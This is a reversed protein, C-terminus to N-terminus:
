PLIGERPTGDGFSVSIIWVSMFRLGLPKHIDKANTASPSSIIIVKIVLIMFMIVAKEIYTFAQPVCRKIPGRRQLIAEPILELLADDRV